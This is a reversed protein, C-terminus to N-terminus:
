SKFHASLQIASGDPMLHEERSSHSGSTLVITIAPRVGWRIPYWRGNPLQANSWTNLRRPLCREEWETTLSRTGNSQFMMLPCSGALLTTETRKAGVM